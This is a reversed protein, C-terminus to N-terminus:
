SPHSHDRQDKEATEIRYTDNILGAGLPAINTVTGQVDFLSVIEQLKRNEM